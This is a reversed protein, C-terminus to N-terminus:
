VTYQLIKKVICKPLLAFYQTEKAYSIWILRMMEWNMPLTLSLVCHMNNNNSISAAADDNLSSVENIRIGFCCVKDKILVSLNHKYYSPM